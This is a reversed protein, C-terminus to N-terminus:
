KIANLVKTLEQAKDFDGVNVADVIAQKLQDEKASNVSNRAVQRVAEEIAVDQLKRNKRNNDAHKVVKSASKVAKGASTAVKHMNKRILSILCLGLVSLGVITGVVALLYMMEERQREAEQEEEYARLEAQRKIEAQEAIYDDKAKQEFIADFLATNIKITVVKDLLWAGNRPLSYQYLKVEDFGKHYDFSMGMKSRIDCHKSHSECVSDPIDKSRYQYEFFDAIPLKGKQVDSTTWFGADRPTVQLYSYDTIYTKEYSYASYGNEKSGFSVTYGDLTLSNKLEITEYVTEHKPEIIKVNAFMNEALAQQSTLVLLLLLIRKM